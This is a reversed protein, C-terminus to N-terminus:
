KKLNNNNNEEYIIKKSIYNVNFYDNLLLKNTNKNIEKLRILLISKQIKYINNNKFSLILLDKLFQIIKYTDKKWLKGLYNLVMEELNIENIYEFLKLNTLMEVMKNHFEKNRNMKILLAFGWANQNVSSFYYVENKLKEKTLPSHHLGFLLKTWLGDIHKKYLTKFIELFIDYARYSNCKIKINLQEEIEKIYNKPLIASYGDKMILHVSKIWDKNQYVYKTSQNNRSNEAVLIIFLLLSQLQQSHFHDFIRFEIGNPKKMPAGSIRENTITDEGFTRFDTSLTTLAGEVQAKPSPKYCPKLKNSEYLKFNDRWYTPTKAYRGLGKNFLRIDSGAINGWGVIMVRYSGNTREKISGPAYEDGTFFGTLILPELWQLQNAFNQHMKLFKLDTTKETYPLTLTVHYSGNYDTHVVDKKTKKDKEFIYENNKITKCYKITRSMGFPHQGLSGYKQILKKALEDKKIINIFRERTEDLGKIMNIMNRDNKVTCFPKWTIFEPMKIPLRELVVKQNCVRGSLEFTSVIGNLFKYEDDSLIIKGKNNNELLRLVCSESDFVIIDEISEKSSSKPIHFFHMEHEIGIGWTYKELDKKLFSSM